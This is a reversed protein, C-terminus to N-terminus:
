KKNNFNESSFNFTISMRFNQPVFLTHLHRIALTPLGFESQM